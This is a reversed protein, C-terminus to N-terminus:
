AAHASGSGQRPRRARRLFLTLSQRSARLPAARRPTPRRHRPRLKVAHAGCVLFTQFKSRRVAERSARPTQRALPLHPSGSRRLAQSEFQEDLRAAHHASCSWNGVQREVVTCYDRKPKDSFRSPLSRDHRRAQAKRVMEFNHLKALGYRVSRCAEASVHCEDRAAVHAM